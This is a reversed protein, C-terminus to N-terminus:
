GSLDPLLQLANERLLASRIGSRSPSQTCILVKALTAGLHYWPWDTGFLLRKGGTREIIEDLRTVSQGHIGLWANEYKIALDLMAVGDRAGAHGLIVQLRPFDRLVAEYHRPLAFRLRGEPEIGARGGHFFVVVGLREATEYLPWLNRDDPYFQQVTPHLKIIRAGSAAYAELQGVRDEDEPHVSAGVLLRDAHPSNDVAGRWQETMDDGFPLGLKIPLLVSKEIRMADMEAILNPVTHTRVFGNGWLGQTLTVRQLGDLAAESFNGNIYIDLDLECPSAPADCDLLHKVRPTSALLDLEPKFLISMGLHTHVDIASPVSDDSLILDENEDLDFWPLEALGKYGAYRQVGYPGQGRNAAEDERQRALNAIDEETYRTGDTPEACGALAAAGAAGALFRRRNLSASITPIGRPTILKEKRMPM